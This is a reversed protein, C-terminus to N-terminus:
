RVSAPEAPSAPTSRTAPPGNASGSNTPLVGILVLVRRFTAGWGRAPDYFPSGATACGQQKQDYFARDDTLRVRYAKAVGTSGSLRSFHNRLDHLAQAQVFRSLPEEVLTVHSPGLLNHINASARQVIWDLSLEILFGSPQLQLGDPAGASTVQRSRDSQITDADQAAM